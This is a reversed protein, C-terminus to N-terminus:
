NEYTLKTQTFEIDISDDSLETLSIRKIPYKEGTEVQISKFIKNKGLPIFEYLNKSLQKIAYNAEIFKQDITLWAKLHSIANLMKPDFTTADASKVVKDNELLEISDGRFIFSFSKPSTVKWQFFDPKKFQMDGQSKLKVGLGKLEKVQSFNTSLQSLKTYKQFIDLALAANPFLGILFAFLLLTKSQKM